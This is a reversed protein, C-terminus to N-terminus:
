RCGFFFFVVIIVVVDASKKKEKRGERLRLVPDRQCVVLM